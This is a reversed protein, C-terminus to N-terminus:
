CQRLFCLLAHPEHSMTICLPYYVPLIHIQVFDCTATGDTCVPCFAFCILALLEHLEHSLTICLIHMQVFGGTATGDTCVPCFDYCILAHPEHHIVQMDEM